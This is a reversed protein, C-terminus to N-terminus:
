DALAPPVNARDRGGHYLLEAPLLQARETLDAFYDIGVGEGAPTVRSQLDEGLLPLYSAGFWECVINVNDPLGLWERGLYHRARDPYPNQPPVQGHLALREDVVTVRATM